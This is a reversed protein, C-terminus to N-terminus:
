SGYASCLFDVYPDDTIEHLTNKFLETSLGIATAAQEVTAVANEHHADDATRSERTLVSLEYAGRLGMPRLTNLKDDLYVFALAQSVLDLLFVFNLNTRMTLQIPDSYALQSITSVGISALRQSVIPDVGSLRTIIDSFAEPIAAEGLPKGALRRFISTLQQM